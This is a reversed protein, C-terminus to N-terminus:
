SEIIPHESNCYSEIVRKKTVKTFLLVYAGFLVDTMIRLERHIIVVHRHCTLFSRHRLSVVLM